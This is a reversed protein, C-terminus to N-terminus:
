SSAIARRIDDPVRVKDGWLGPLQVSTVTM